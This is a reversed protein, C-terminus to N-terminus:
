DVFGRVCFGRHACMCDTQVFPRGLTKDQEPQYPATELDIERAPHLTREKREVRRCALSGRM